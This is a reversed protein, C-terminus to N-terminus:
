FTDNTCEQPIVYLSKTTNTAVAYFRLSDRFSWHKRAPALLTSCRRPIPFARDQRTFHLSFSRSSRWSPTEKRSLTHWQRPKHVWLLLQSELALIQKLIRCNLSFGKPLLLRRRFMKSIKSSFTTTEKCSGEVKTKLTVTSLPSFALVFTPNGPTKNREVTPFESVFCWWGGGGTGAGGAGQSATGRTQSRTTARTTDEEAQEGEGKDWSEQLLRNPEGEKTRLWTPRLTELWDKKRKKQLPLSNRSPVKHHPCKGRLIQCKGGKKTIEGCIPEKQGFINEKKENRSRTQNEATSAPVRKAPANREVTNGVMLPLTAYTRRWTKGPRNTANQTRWKQQPLPLIGKIKLKNRKPPFFDFSLFIFLFLPSQLLSASSSSETSDLKRLFFALFPPFPLFKLNQAQGCCFLVFSHLFQLVFFLCGM